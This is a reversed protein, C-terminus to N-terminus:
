VRRGLDARAEDAAPDRVMLPLSRRLLAALLRRRAPTDQGAAVSEALEAELQPLRGRWDALEIARRGAETIAEDDRAARLLGGRADAAEQESGRRLLLRALALAVTPNADHAAAARYTAIALDDAGARAQLDGVRALMQPDETAAAAKAHSLARAVDYRALAIDAIQLHAERARGPAFRAIEDLRAVAEDLQGTRKLLHVLAFGAEVAIE